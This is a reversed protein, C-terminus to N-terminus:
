LFESYRPRESGEKCQGVKVPPCKMAVPASHGLGACEQRELGMRLRILLMRQPKITWIM